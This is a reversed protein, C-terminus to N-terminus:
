WVIWKKGNRLIEVETEEWFLYKVMYNLASINQKIVAKHERHTVPDKINFIIKGPYFDEKDNVFNYTVEVSKTWPFTLLPWNKLNVLQFDSLEKSLILMNKHDKVVTESMDNGKNFLGILCM